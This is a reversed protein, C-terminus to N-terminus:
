KGKKPQCQEGAMSMVMINVYDSVGETEPDKLSKPEKCHKYAETQAATSDKAGHQLAVAAKGILCAVYDDVPDVKTTKAQTTAINVTLALVWALHKLHNNM